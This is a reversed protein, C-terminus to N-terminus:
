RGPLCRAIAVWSTGYADLAAYLIDDEQPTWCRKEVGPKAVNNFRCGCVRGNLV